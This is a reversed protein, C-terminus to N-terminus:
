GGLGLRALPHSPQTLDPSSSPCTACTLLPQLLPHDEGQGVRAGGGAEGGWGSGVGAQSHVM